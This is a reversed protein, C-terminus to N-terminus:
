RVGFEMLVNRDFGWKGLVDPGFRLFTSLAYHRIDWFGELDSFDCPTQGLAALILM